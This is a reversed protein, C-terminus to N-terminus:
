DDVETSGPNGPHPNADHTTGDNVMRELAKALQDAYWEAREKTTKHCVSFSQHDIVLDAFYGGFRHEVRTHKQKIEELTM